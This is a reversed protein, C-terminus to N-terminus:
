SEGGELPAEIEVKAPRVPHGEEALPSGVYYDIGAEEERKVMYGPITIRRGNIAIHGHVILQRAQRMSSALNKQAVLTQLRRNLLDEVTLALVDDLEGDMDLIGKRKLSELLNDIERKTNENMIGSARAALLKRAVRRYKRLMSEAKWLERKNRLGYRKVLNAEEELKEHQWPYRPTEYQKRCKGPYGM